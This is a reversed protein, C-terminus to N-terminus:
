WVRRSHCRPVQPKGPCCRGGRAAGLCSTEAGYGRFWDEGPAQETGLRLQVSITGLSLPGPGQGQAVELGLHTDAARPCIISDAIPAATCPGHLRPPCARFTSPPSKLSVAGLPALSLPPLDLADWASPGGSRPGLPLLHSSAATMHTAAMEAVLGIGGERRRTRWANACRSAKGDTGRPRQM